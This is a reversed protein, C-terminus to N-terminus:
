VHHTEAPIATATATAASAAAATAYAVCQRALVDTPDVLRVSTGNTGVYDTQPLLLPLETCGLIVVEVGQAVLGNIAAAIDLQCQGSTFGAKVGEAGYIADMVRAQLAPGPLVQQLGQSMLAKEYVGSEVTGTTALVGVSRLSPFNERLYRVTVTLMNVIPISLYPQIREVFAHATNCPIAILDADGAELKKCTAYLSLTPDPGDGILSETRDPIQPNQEVLLKIHDQDRKAPTNRVIKHIFDVTAAPGVGGVVGVKFLTEPSAYQGSVVYQAYALNSDLLPVPLPGIEGAVLAIETLGPVIITAGQAILDECAERLLTVPRGNLNGSKVGQAGYVAETVLDVEDRQRPYVVDFEPSAFYREFLGKRRTYDSALVGIRRVPPFRRRVHSRVAEVMDVIQLPSNARLEDIFTHSLFCPLVVTTVGQKEFRSILDFIYLKRETTAATGTGSTRFPHQEFIVDFHEADSTAPTSKVLKFFVDASALPGLGGVVGFKRVSKAPGENM